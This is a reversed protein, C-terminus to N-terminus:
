VGDAAAEQREQDIRDQEARGEQSLDDNGVANGAMEKAKGSVQHGMSKLGSSAPNDNDDSM